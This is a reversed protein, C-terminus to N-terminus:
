LVVVRSNVQGVEGLRNLRLVEAVLAEDEAGNTHRSDLERRMIRARQGKGGVGADGLQRVLERVESGEDSM